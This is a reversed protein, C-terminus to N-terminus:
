PEAPRAPEPAPAPAPEIAPAVPPAFGPEAPPAPSAACLPDIGLYDFMGTPQEVAPPEAPAHAAPADDDDDEWEEDDEIIERRAVPEEEARPASPPEEGVPEPAQPPLGANFLAALGQAQPPPGPFLDDVTVDASSPLADIEPATAPRVEGSGTGATPQQRQQAEALQAAFAAPLAPGGAPASEGPRVEVEIERKAFFGGVGGSSTERRSVIVADDGLERRIRPVLEELSRGRYTFTDQDEPTM